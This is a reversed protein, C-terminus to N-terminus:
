REINIVKLFSLLSFQIHFPQQCSGFQWYNIFSHMDKEQTVMDKPDAYLFLCVVCACYDSECFFNSM